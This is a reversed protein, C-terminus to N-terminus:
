QLRAAAAKAGSATNFQRAQLMATGLPTPVTVRYPALFRTGLIPAFWVEMNRQAALYRITVRDPIYGAIPEFYIACVVAPGRYGGESRVTEMRKFELKLDYRMRGDFVATASRCAEPAVPEGVGPVRLLTGSMPDVVGRRHGETIAIRTADPGPVPEISVEKVAGAALAMRITESKRSSTTTITYTLPSLAGGSLRGQSAANGSSRGFMNLLGGSGGNASTAYHDDGIEVTWSGEGVPVGALSAEYKAELRGQAQAPDSAMGPGALAIASVTVLRYLYPLRRRPM